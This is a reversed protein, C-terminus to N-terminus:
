QLSLYREKANNLITHIMEWIFPGISIIYKLEVFGLITNIIFIVSIFGRVRPLTFDIHSILVRLCSVVTAVLETNSTYCATSSLLENQNSYWYLCCRIQAKSYFSSTKFLCFILLTQWSCLSPSSIWDNAQLSFFSSNYCSITRPLHIISPDSSAKFAM